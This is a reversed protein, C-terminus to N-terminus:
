RLLEATDPFQQQRRHLHFGAIGPSVGIASVNFTVAIAPNSDSAGGIFRSITATYTGATLGTPDATVTVATPTNASFITQGNVKLWAALGSAGGSRFAISAGTSSTVNVTQSVASGGFQGSFTLTTKDVVLTQASLFHASVLALLPLILYSISLVRKMKLPPVELLAPLESPLVGRRVSSLVATVM